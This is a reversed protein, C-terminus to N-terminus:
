SDQFWDIQGRKNQYREAPEEKVTESQGNEWGNEQIQFCRCHYAIVFLGMLFASTYPEVLSHISWGLFAISIVKVSETDKYMWLKKGAMIIIGIWFLLYIMGGQHLIELLQNHSHVAWIYYRRRIEDYQIGYGVLFSKLILGFEVNWVAVRAELSNWKGLFDDILWRFLNQMKLVIVLVFFVPQILWYSYYNFVATRNKLLLYVISILLLTVVIGGSWVRFASMFIAATLAYARAKKGSYNKYLFAFMLAPLFYRTHTNYYGLFWNRSYQVTRYLGGPFLFETLLNIYIVLEFCFLQSEIFAEKRDEVMDYLLVISLVSFANVMSSKVNGHFMLTNAVLYGEMFVFILILKSIKKRFLFYWIMIIGFSVLRWMDTLTDLVQFQEFYGPKLHPFTLFFILMRYLYHRPLRIIFANKEINM